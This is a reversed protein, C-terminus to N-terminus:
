PRCGRLRRPTRSIPEPSTSPNTTANCCQCGCDWRVMKSSLDYASSEGDMCSPSLGGQVGIAKQFSSILDIYQIPRSWLGIVMVVVFRALWLFGMPVLQRGSGTWMVLVGVHRCLVGGCRAQSGTSWQGIAVGVGPVGSTENIIVTWFNSM